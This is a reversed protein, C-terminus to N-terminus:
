SKQMEASLEGIKLYRNRTAVVMHEFLLIDSSIQELSAFRHQKMRVDGEGQM